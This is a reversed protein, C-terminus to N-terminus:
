SFHTFFPHKPIPIRFAAAQTELYAQAHKFVFELIDEISTYIKYTWFAESFALNSGHWSPFDEKKM